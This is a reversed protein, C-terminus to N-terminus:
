LIRNYFLSPRPLSFSIYPSLSRKSTVNMRFNLFVYTWIQEDFVHIEFEYGDSVFIVVGKVWSLDVSRGQSGWLSKRLGRLNENWGM